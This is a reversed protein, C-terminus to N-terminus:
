CGEQLHPKLLLTLARTLLPLQSELQGTSGQCDSRLIESKHQKAKDSVSSGQTAWATNLNLIRRGRSGFSQSPLQTTSYGAM